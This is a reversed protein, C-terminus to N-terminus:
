TRGGCGACKAEARAAPSCCSGPLGCGTRPWPLSSRAAEEPTWAGSARDGGKARPRKFDALVDTGMRGTTRAWATAAKLVAVAHQISRESLPGRGLRSGDDSRLVAVFQGAAIPSLQAVKLGGIHPVIWGDIVKRYM